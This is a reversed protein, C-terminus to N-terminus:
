AGANFTHALVIWEEISLTQPRRKPDITARVMMEKGQPLHGLTNSLMKRKGAFAIKTLRFVADIIPPSAKPQVFGEIQLVASDVQPPPLFADPPVLAVIHPAGFLGVIISLLSRDKQDCIREAVERQMLLTLTTPRMASELFAHRLLPSTIHYPINAVIKYPQDPFPVSLANGHIITLANARQENMSVYTNLLPILQQDLEIAIVSAKAELLRKTLVGIGPGIEVIQEHPQIDAAAMIADLVTEDILFHQGLNKNLWIGNARLFGSIDDRLM